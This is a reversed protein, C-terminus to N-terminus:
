AFERYLRAIREAGAAWTQARAKLEAEEVVRSLWQPGAIAREVCEIMDQASLPDFMQREDLALETLSSSRSFLAPRAARYAELVPIGFGEYLSPYILMQMARLLAWKEPESIMGVYSFATGFRTSAEAILDPGYNKKGAVILRLGPHRRAIVEWAEFLTALNKRPEINGVYFCFPPGDIAMQVPISISGVAPPDVGCGIVHIRDPDINSLEVIRAKTFDSVAVIARAEKVQRHFARASLIRNTRNFYDPRDIPITDHITVIKNDYGGMNAFYTEHVIDPKKGFDLRTVWPAFEYALNELKRPVPAPQRYRSKVEAPANRLATNNADGQILIDIAIDNQTNILASVLGICYRAVGAIPPRIPRGDFRLKILSRRWSSTTKVFDSM